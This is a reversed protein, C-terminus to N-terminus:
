VGKSSDDKSPFSYSALLGGALLAVVVALSFETSVHLGFFDAFMKVGVWGLVLAVAKDLFRLEGLATSVFGYLARLSLIAFINSTWVIVPDKTVGFVQLYLV